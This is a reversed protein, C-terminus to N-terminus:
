LINALLPFNSAFLRELLLKVLNPLFYSFYLKIFQTLQRRELTFMSLKKWHSKRKRWFIPQFKPNPRLFVERVNKQYLLDKTSKIKISKQFSLSKNTSKLLHLHHLHNKRLAAALSTSHFIFAAGYKWQMM